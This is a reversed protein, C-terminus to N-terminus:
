DVLVIDSARIVFYLKDKYQIGHGAHKDYHIVDGDKVGEVLNGVSIVNAKIYRNDEDLDETMILGAVKKPETKVKDVVVYNNIAKM